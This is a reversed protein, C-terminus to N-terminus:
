SSSVPKKCCPRRRWSTRTSSCSGPSRRPRTGDALDLSTGFDIAYNAFLTEQQPEFLLNLLIVNTEEETMVGLEPRPQKLGDVRYWMMGRCAQAGIDLDSADLDIMVRAFENFLEQVENRLADPWKNIREAYWRMKQLGYLNGPVSSALHGVEVPLEVPEASIGTPRASGNSAPTQLTSTEM